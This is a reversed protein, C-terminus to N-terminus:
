VGRSSRLSLSWRRRALPRFGHLRYLPEARAHREDVELEMAVCGLARAARLAAELLRTGIGEGRRAPVVYLEDLWAVLGGHELTWTHALCAVGVVAGADDAVLLAGRAPDHALGEVAFALDALAIHVAHERLQAALLVTVADLDDPGAPRIQVDPRMPPLARPPRTPAPGPACDVGHAAPAVPSRAADTAMAPAARCIPLRFRAAPAPTRRTTERTGQAPAARANGCGM